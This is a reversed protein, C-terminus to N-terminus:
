RMSNINSGPIYSRQLLAQEVQVRSSSPTFCERSDARYLTPRTINYVERDLNNTKSLGKRSNTPTPLDSRIDDARQGPYMSPANGLILRSTGFHVMDRGTSNERCQLRDKSPASHTNTSYANRYLSTHNFTETNGVLAATNRPGSLAPVASHEVVPMVLGQRHQEMPGNKLIESSQGPIATFSQNASQATGIYGSQAREPSMSVTGPVIMGAADLSVTQYGQQGFTTSRDKLLVDTNTLIPGQAEVNSSVSMPMMVQDNCNGRSGQVNIPDYGSVRGATPGEISGQLNSPASDNRNINVVGPGAISASPGSVTGNYSTQFSDSRNIAVTGPVVTGFSGTVPAILTSPQSDNSGSQSPNPYMVTAHSTSSEVSGNYQLPSSDTRRVHNLNALIPTVASLVTSSVTPIITETISQREKSNAQRVITDLMSGEQRVTPVYPLPRATSPAVISHDISSACSQAGLQTFQLHRTEGASLKTTCESVPQPAPITDLQQTPVLPPIVRYMQQYGVFGFAREKGLQQAEPLYGNRNWYLDRGIFQNAIQRRADAYQQDGFLNPGNKALKADSICDGRVDLNQETRHLDKRVTDYGGQLAVLRPHSRLYSSRLLAGKETTPPPLLNETLEYVEGTYPNTRYGTVRRGSPYPCVYKCNTAPPPLPLLHVCNPVGCNYPCKRVGTQQVHVNVNIHECNPKGCNYPCVKHGGHSTRVDVNVNLHECNPKGCNYPCVKHPVAPGTRVDVNVNLHECNPKGCNYPCVKHGAPGTRVDVNVNLHECNYKGCRQPCVKVHECNLKGCKVPCHCMRQYCAGFTRDVGAHARDLTLPPKGTCTGLAAHCNGAASLQHAQITAVAQQKFREQLSM